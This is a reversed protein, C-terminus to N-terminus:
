SEWAELAGPPLGPFQPAADRIEYWPAKSELNVHAVPPQGIDDDLSAVVLSLNAPFNRSQSGIRTGCRGCFVRQGGSPSEWIRLEQEGATFRLDARRVLAVVSFASGHARRCYQCHCAVPPGLEGELRYRVAGCLCRGTHAM